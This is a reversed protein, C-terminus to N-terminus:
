GSKLLINFSSCLYETLPLISLPIKNLKDSAFVFSSTLTKFSLLNLSMRLHTILLRSLSGDDNNVVMYSSIYMAKSDDEIGWDINIM